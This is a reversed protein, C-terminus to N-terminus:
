GALRHRIELAEVGSRDSRPVATHNRKVEVASFPRAAAPPRARGALHRRRRRGGAGAALVRWQFLRVRTGPKESIAYRIAVGRGKTRCNGSEGAANDNSKTSMEKCLDASASFHLYNGISLNRSSWPQRSRFGFPPLLLM